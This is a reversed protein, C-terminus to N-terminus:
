NQRPGCKRYCSNKEQNCKRKCADAFQRTAASSCGYKCQNTKVRCAARCTEVSILILHPHQNGIEASQASSIFDGHNSLGFSLLCVLGAFILKRIAM